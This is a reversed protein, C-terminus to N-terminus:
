QNQDNRSQFNRIKVDAFIYTRHFNYYKISISVEGTYKKGIIRTETKSM